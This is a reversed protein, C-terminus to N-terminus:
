PTDELPAGSIVDLAKSPPITRILNGDLDRVEIVLRGSTPDTAFHMDRGASRLEDQRASAREIEGRLEPPPTAPVDIHVDSAASLEKSFDRSKGAAEARPARAPGGAGDSGRIPPVNLEM